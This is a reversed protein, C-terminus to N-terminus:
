LKAKKEALREKLRAARELDEQGIREAARGTGRSPRRSKLAPIRNQLCHQYFPISNDDIKDM